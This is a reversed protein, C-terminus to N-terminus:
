KPVLGKGPVFTHTVKPGSQEIKKNREVGAIPSLYDLEDSWAQMLEARVDEPIKQGMYQALEPNSQILLQTVADTKELNAIDKKISAIRSLAQGKKGAATATAKTKQLAAKSPGSSIGNKTAWDKTKPNLAWTPDESFKEVMESMPGKPGKFVIDGYDVSIDKETITVGSESLGGLQKYIKFADETSNAKLATNIATSEQQIGQLREQNAKDRDYSGLKKEALANNLQGSKIALANEAAKAISPVQYSSEKRALLNTM